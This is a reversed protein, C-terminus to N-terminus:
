REFRALIETETGPPPVLVKLAVDEGQSQTAQYVVAMGGSGLIEKITYPGLTQGLLNNATV